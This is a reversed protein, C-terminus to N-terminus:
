HRIERIVGELRTMFRKVWHNEETLNEAILTMQEDESRPAPRPPAIVETFVIMASGETKPVNPRGFTDASRLNQHQCDGCTFTQLEFDHGYVPHPARRTLYMRNKCEPCTLTDTSGFNPFM